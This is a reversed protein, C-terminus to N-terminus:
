ARLTIGLNDRLAALARDVAADAEEDTITTDMRQMTARVALSKKGEAVQAGRYEDFTRVGTCLDGIAEAIAREIRAAPTDLDCLLALDRYTSPYRSPPRYLPTTFEPVRELYLWAGYGPLRLDFAKALRPDIQGLSAIERGDLLVAATKGPHLGKRNDPAFEFDSRGTLEHLLAIVDSKLRLFHSDHWPAEQLPEATFAFSASALELPQGEDRYFIHGIEFIRAPADLRALHEMHAPGLASRLYRQDESLPNLVEVPQFTPELGARKMRDFIQAGHLAVTVVEDYGLASLTAAIRGELLYENSSIDHEAVAPIVGEIRDYGAMRAVEEVVDAAITVDRRWLPPTVLLTGEGAPEVAFGLRDLYEGTEQATLDFGLLRKVDRTEFTITQAQPEAIGFVRPEGAHAGAERLLQAARQAGWTSLVPPLTKEHRTSAESRLALRAGTRRIRPGNFTASELLISTTSGTVESAAGGMLGALGEAGRESAIVLDRPTLERQAGDLTELTEGERADRVILHGDPIKAADYFHLPQGTELMVYNSIDVLNNIPRQGALALRIRMWAPSPAVQVHDFAQVVFRTCDPSEISVRPGPADPSAPAFAGLDPARLPTGQYAALERALGLISLADVRNSTVDVDLVAESLRFYEVVDTGPPLAEDLQMIGDEFWEPPLALEEASVMMGESEVGRMKRREIKLHPLQAGITAVPITQGLAVNTAATAITLLAGNGVDIKGVQLRDANPHKELQAIRGVLVGTVVPRQEIADVPFGIQALMDAVRQPDVPLEVYERLWALPVRM